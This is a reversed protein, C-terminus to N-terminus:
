LGGSPRIRSLLTLLPVRETSVLDEDPLEAGGKLRSRRSLSEFSTCTAGRELLQCIVAVCRLKPPRRRPDRPPPIPSIFSFIAVAAPRGRPVWNARRNTIDM